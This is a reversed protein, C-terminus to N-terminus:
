QVSFICQAKFGLEGYFIVQGDFQTNNQLMYAESIFQIVYLGNKTTYYTNIVVYMGSQVLSAMNYSIVGIVVKIYRM